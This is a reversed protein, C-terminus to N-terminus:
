IAAQSDDVTAATVDAILADVDQETTAWSCMFRASGQGIFTYYRWGKAVLHEHCQPPLEVFVANVDTPYLLRTGEIRALGRALRQAMRNAHEAHRLWASDTLMGLWPATLFRMKSALQGAQKCRYEFDAALERNFFIVAEGLPLGMKAGGLCLIDVGAKWTLESPPVGLAAIANALRAGDMHVKM